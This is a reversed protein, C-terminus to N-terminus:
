KMTGKMVSRKMPRRMLPKPIVEPLKEPSIKMPSVSRKSISPSHDRAVELASQQSKLDATYQGVRLAYETESLVGLELLNTLADINEDYATELAKSRENFMDKVKEMSESFEEKAAAVREAYARLEDSTQLLEIEKMKRLGLFDLVKNVGRIVGNIVGIVANGFPVIIHDNLWLFVDGVVSVAVRLIEFVLNLRLLLAAITIFPALLNAVPEALDLLLDLLPAIADAILPDLLPPLEEVFTKIFNMADNVSEFSLAMRVLEEILIQTPDINEQGAFGALRGVDTEAAQAEFEAGMFQAWSGSEKAAERMDEFAKKAAQVKAEAARKAEEIETDAITKAWQAALTAKQEATGAFTSLEKDRELELDDIRTETLKAEVERAKLAYEDLIAQQKAGYADAALDKLRAIGEESLRAAAGLEQAKELNAAYEAAADKMKALRQEDLTLPASALKSSFEDVAKNAEELLANKKAELLSLAQDRMKNSASGKGWDFRALASIQEEIKQVEPKADEIISKIKDFASKYSDAAKKNLNEIQGSVETLRDQYVKIDADLAKIQPSTEDVKITQGFANTTETGLAAKRRQEYFAISERLADQEKKLETFTLSSVAAGSSPGTGGLGRLLMDRERMKAMEDDMAGINAQISETESRKAAILLGIAAVSAVAAAIGAWLLPNGAANAANVAMQAGFLGWKAATVIATRITLATFAALVITTVVAAATKMEPSMKALAQAFQRVLAAGEQVIPAFGEGLAEVVDGLAEKTTALAISTSGTQGIFGGYMEAVLDIGKGAKLEEDTLDKLAPIMQGIRGESGSLSVTLKQVSSSLDDGTAASLGAAATILKKIQEESKGQAVLEAQLQVVYDADVGALAQLEEAQAVLAEQADEMGRLELAMALRARASEAEAFAKVVPGLSKGAAVVAGIAIGAQAIAQTMDKMSADGKATTQATEAIEKELRDYDGKLKQLESSQPSLGQDILSRATNKLANQQEKLYSADRGFLSAMEASTKLQKSLGALESKLVDAPPSLAKVQDAVAKFDGKVDGLVARAEAASVKVTLTITQDTAM